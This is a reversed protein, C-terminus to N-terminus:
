LTIINHNNKIALMIDKRPKVHVCSEIVQM